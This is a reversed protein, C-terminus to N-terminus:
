RHLRGDRDDRSAAPRAAAPGSAEAFPANDERPVLSWRAFQQPEFHWTLVLRQGPLSLPSGSTPHMAGPCASEHPKHVPNM